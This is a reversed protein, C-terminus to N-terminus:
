ALTEVEETSDTDRRAALMTRIEEEPLGLAIMLAEIERALNPAYEVSLIIESQEKTSM